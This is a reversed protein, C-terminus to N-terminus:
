VLKKNVWKVTESALDNIVTEHQIGTSKLMKFSHDAGDFLKLTAKKLGKTVKSILNVDALTDRTGQLFLMPKGIRDVHEARKTDPKGAPHLPFGFFVIGELDAEKEAVLLSLMRGGFSKGGAILPCQLKEAYERGRQLAAKWAAFALPKSDPRKSGKEMYVFQFRLTGIGKEALADALTEMFQHEMGAGAGHALVMLCQPSQQYQIIGSVATGEERVNIRIRRKM